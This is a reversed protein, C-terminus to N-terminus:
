RKSKKKLKKIEKRLDNITIMDLLSVVIMIIIVVTKFNEM